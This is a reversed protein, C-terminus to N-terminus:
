STEFLMASIESAQVFNQINTTRSKEPSADEFGQDELIVCDNKIKFGM